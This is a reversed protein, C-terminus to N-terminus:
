LEDSFGALGRYFRSPPIKKEDSCGSSMRSRSAKHRHAGFYAKREYDVLRFSCQFSQVIDEIEVRLEKSIVGGTNGSSVTIGDESIERSNTDACSSASNKPIETFVIM